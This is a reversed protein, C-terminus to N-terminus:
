VTGKGHQYYMAFCTTCLAWLNNEGIVKWNPFEKLSYKFFRIEFSDDGAPRVYIVPTNTESLVSGMVKMTSHERYLEIDLGTWDYGKAGGVKRQVVIGAPSLVIFQNANLVMVIIGILIIIGAISDLILDLVWSSLGTDNYVAISVGIFVTLLIFGLILLIPGQEGKRGGLVVKRGENIADSIDERSRITGYLYNGTKYKRSAHKCEMIQELNMGIWGNYQRLQCM